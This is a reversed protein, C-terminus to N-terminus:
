ERSLYHLGALIAYTFFIFMCIISVLSIVSCGLSLIDLCYTGNLAQVREVWKRAEFKAKKNEGTGMDDDEDDDSSPEHKHPVLLDIHM